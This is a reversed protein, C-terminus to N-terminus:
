SKKCVAFLSIGFPLKFRNELKLLWCFKDFLWTQILSFKKRKLIKSNLFWGLGGLINFYDVKEVSFGVSKLLKVLNERNYRRYHGLSNDLSGKLNSLAPVIIIVKTNDKMISYIDMLAKKDDEIHELVNLCLITDFNYNKLIQLDSSVINHNLITVNPYVGFRNRLYFLNAEDIDTVVLKEAHLLYKTINGIGAGIELIRKNLFPKIKEYIFYNYNRLAGMKLLTDLSIDYATFKQRILWYIETFLHYWHIKKGEEYTRGSYSIPVEYVRFNHKFIEATIEAEIGFDNAKLKLNKIVEKRFAKYGTMLDTLFTNYLINAILNLIKNGLYHTFLYVRHTGIFRSGYVVDAYGDLIPKILIPIEEPHYELDADQIVVIEGKVYKFGTRLASGKGLNKSHFIIKIEPDDITELYEKTGDNSGDDVVIIEKELAIKKLKDLVIPITPKENYVPVVISIM